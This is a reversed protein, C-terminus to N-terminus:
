LHSKPTTKGNGDDGMYEDWFGALNGWIQGTEAKLEHWEPNNM